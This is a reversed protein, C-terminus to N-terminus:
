SFVLLSNLILLACLATVIFVIPIQMSRKQPSYQVKVNYYFKLFDCTSYNQNLM